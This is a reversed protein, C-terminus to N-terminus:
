ANTGVASRVRALVPKAIERAKEGGKRLINELQDKNNILSQYVERPGRLQNNLAEFLLQKVEGWGIGTAYRKELESVQDPTAVEKYLEFLISTKPDKPAEPPTSDTVFKMVMKRLKAEDEFLPIHNGYSKSMKRGDLGPVNKAMQVHAKPMKLIHPHELKKNKVAAKGFVHNFKQAIDRAFEIHQLQDDGVPVIDTDFLLIDAAMLVPYEYLGMSVGDDLDEKGAERNEQVRAKYAHARNMFGKPTVCSLIWQLEFTEPVDSQRYIITKDPDLGSAIWTAAVQYTYERLLTPDQVTTLAHYDAIFLLSRQAQRALEVAPRIAGLYNGIHPLHTPKVGTLVTQPTTSTM